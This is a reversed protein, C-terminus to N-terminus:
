CGFLSLRLSRKEKETGRTNEQNKEEKGTAAKKNEM